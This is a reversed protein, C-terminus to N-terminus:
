RYNEVGNFVSIFRFEDGFPASDGQREGENRKEGRRSLSVIEHHQQRSIDVGYINPMAQFKLVSPKASQEGCRKNQSQRRGVSDDAPQETINKGGGTKISPSCNQQYKTDETDGM